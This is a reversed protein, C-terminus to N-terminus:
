TIELQEASVLEMLNLSDVLANVDRLLDLWNQNLVGVDRAVLSVTSLRFFPHFEDAPEVAPYDEIDAPSAVHTFEDRPVAGLYRRYVFIASTINVAEAVRVDLQYGSQDGDVYTALGDHCLRISRGTPCIPSPGFGRTIVLPM